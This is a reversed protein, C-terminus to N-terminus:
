FHRDDLGPTGAKPRNLIVFSPSPVYQTPANWAAITLGDWGASIITAYTCHAFQNCIAQRTGDWM